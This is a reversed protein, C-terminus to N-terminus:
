FIPKQLAERESAGASPTWHATVAWNMGM